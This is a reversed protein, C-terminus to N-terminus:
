VAQYEIFVLTIAEVAQLHYRYDMHYGCLSSLHFWAAALALARCTHVISVSFGIVWVLQSVHENFGWAHVLPLHMHYGCLSSLHVM